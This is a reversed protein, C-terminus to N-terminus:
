FLKNLYFFTIIVGSFISLTFPYLKKNENQRPTSFVLTKTIISEYINKLMQFLYGRLCAFFLSWFVGCAFSFLICWLVFKVGFMFGIASIFKVDGGGLKGTLWFAYMIIFGGLGGAISSLLNDYNLILAIVALLLNSYNYVKNKFLDTLVNFIAFVFVIFFKILLIKM